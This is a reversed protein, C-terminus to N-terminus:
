VELGTRAYIQVRSFPWLEAATPHWNDPIYSPIDPWNAGGAREVVPCDCNPLNAFLSKQADGRQWVATAPPTGMVTTSLSMSTQADNFDAAKAFQEVRRVGHIGPATLAEIQSTHAAKLDLALTLKADPIFDYPM